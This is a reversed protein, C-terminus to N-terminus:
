SSIFNPLSQTIVGSTRISKSRTFLQIFLSFARELAEKHLWIKRQLDSEKAAIMIINYSILVQFSCMRLVHALCLCGERWIGPINTKCQSKKFQFVQSWQLFIGLATGIALEKIKKGWYLWNCFWVMINIKNFSSLSLHQLVFTLALWGERYLARNKKIADPHCIKVLWQWRPSWEVM